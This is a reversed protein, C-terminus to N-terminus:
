RRGLGARNLAGAKEERRVAAGGRRWPRRRPSSRGAGTWLATCARVHRGLSRSGSESGRRAGGAGGDRRCGPRLLRRRGIGGVSSV